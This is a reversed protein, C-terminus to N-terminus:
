QKAKQKEAKPAEIADDQAFGSIAYLISHKAVAVSNTLVPLAVGSCTVHSVEMNVKDEEDTQSVWHYPILYGSKSDDANHANKYPMLQFNRGMFTLPLGKPKEGQKIFQVVGAPYLQLDHKKLKDKTYLCAPNMTFILKNKPLNKLYTDIVLAQLKNRALDKQMSMTKDGVMRASVFADPFLLPPDKKTVKWEKLKDFPVDVVQPAEFLPHHEFICNTESIAKLLFIKCDHDKHTYRAHTITAFLAPYLFAQSVVEPSFVSCIGLYMKGVAIHSHQLQAVKAATAGILDEIGGKQLTTGAPQKSWSFDGALEQAFVHVIDSFNGLEQKDRSFKQKGLLLLVFRVNLRGFAVVVHQKNASTCCDTWAQKLLDDMQILKAKLAGKCRDFDAKVILKTYGDSTKTSSLMAHLLAIRTMIMPNGEVKFDFHALLHM